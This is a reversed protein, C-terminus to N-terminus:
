DENDDSNESRDSLENMSSNIGNVISLLAITVQEMFSKIDEVKCYMPEEAQTDETNIETETSL